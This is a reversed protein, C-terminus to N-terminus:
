TSVLFFCSFLQDYLVVVAISLIHTFMGWDTNCSLSFKVWKSLFVSLFVHATKMSEEHSKLVALALEQFM